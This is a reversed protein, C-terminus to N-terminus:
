QVGGANAGALKLVLAATEHRLTSLKRCLVCNLNATDYQPCAMLESAAAVMQGAFGAKERLSPAQGIATTLRMIEPEVTEFLGAACTLQSDGGASPMANHRAADRGAM